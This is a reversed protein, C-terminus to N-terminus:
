KRYGTNKIKRVIYEYLRLIGYGAVAGSVNLLIDDVDFEGIGYLFQITEFGASTLLSCLFTLGVGKKGKWLLGTLIGFPLFLGINGLVNWRAYSHEWNKIFFATSEFLRFYAKRPELSTGHYLMQMLRYTQDLSGKFLIIYTLAGLYGAWCFAYIIYFLM